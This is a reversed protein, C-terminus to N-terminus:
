EIATETWVKGPTQNDRARREEDHDDDPGQWLRVLALYNHKPMSRPLGTAFAQAESKAVEAGRKACAQWILTM